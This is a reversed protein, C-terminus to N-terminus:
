HAFHHSIPKLCILAVTPYREANGNWKCALFNFASISVVNPHSRSSLATLRMSSSSSTIQIMIVLMIMEGKSFILSITREMQTCNAGTTTSISPDYALFDSEKFDGSPCPVSALSCFVQL